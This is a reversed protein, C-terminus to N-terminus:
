IMKFIILNEDENDLANDKLKNKDNKSKEQDIEDLENIELEKKSIDMEGSIDDIIEKNDYLGLDYIFGDRIKEEDKNLYCNGCNM